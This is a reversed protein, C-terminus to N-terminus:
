PLVRTATAIRADNFYISMSMGDDSIVVHTCPTGAVSGLGELCRNKSPMFGYRRERGAELIAVQRQPAGGWGSASWDWGGEPRVRVTLREATQGGLGVANEANWDGEPRDLSSLEFKRQQLRVLSSGGIAGEWTERQTGSVLDITHKGAKVNPIVLSRRGLNLFGGGRTRGVPVGDLLVDADVDAQVILTLQRESDASVPAASQPPAPIPSPAPAPSPALAVERKRLRADLSKAENPGLSIEFRGDEYGDKTVRVQHRGPSLEGAWATVGVKRQGVWVEAQGPASTVVLRGPKPTLEVELRTLQELAIAVERTAPEYDGHSLVVKHRGVRVRTLKQPSLGVAAGDLEIRAGAPRSVIELAGAHPELARAIRLAQGATVEVGESVAGHGDLVLTLQHRGPEASLALPTKGAPRANWYVVAGPPSSQIQISAPPVAVTTAPLPSPPGPAPAPGPPAVPAVAAGPKVFIFQGEGALNGFQPLQRKNSEAFVRQKVWLGLEELALWTKGSFADGQLGRVLIETFVGHGGREQAQDEQRGATLIQIAPKRVMEALLDDAIARNFFAYGSYCADVVYLIHKAPLRDSIQRLATMSIATSFLQSADGDVPLLYGEEEGTRLRDTKGHGAFFVLLRDNPGVQARLQDGLLREIATKTAQGDILTFVRERRFGQGLLAGEIARADNVAYRLKPVRPHRYDNIGVIVAWSDSYYGVGAPQSPPQVGVERSQQAGAAGALALV